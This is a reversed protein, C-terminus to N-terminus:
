LCILREDLHSLLLLLLMNHNVDLIYWGQWADFCFGRKGAVGDIELAVPV